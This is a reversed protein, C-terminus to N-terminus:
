GLQLPLASHIQLFFFFSLFSYCAYSFFCLFFTGRILLNQIKPHRVKGDKAGTLSWTAHHYRSPPLIFSMVPRQYYYYHDVQQLNRAWGLFTLDLLGDQHGPAWLYSKKHKLRGGGWKQCSKIRPISIVHFGPRPPPYASTWCWHASERRKCPLYNGLLSINCLLIARALHGKVNSGEKRWGWKLEWLRILIKTM